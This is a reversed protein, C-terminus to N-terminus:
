FLIPDRYRTLPNQFLRQLGDKAGKKHIEFHNFWYRSTSDWKYLFSNQDKVPSEADVRM